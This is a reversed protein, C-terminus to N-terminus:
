MKWFEWWKKQKSSALQRQTELSEKLAVMLNQDREKLHNDMYEQQQKLLNLLEQNFNEQQEKFSQFEELLENYQRSYRKEDTARLAVDNGKKWVVVSRLAQELVMTDKYEMLKKFAILDDDFFGRHGHENKHFTYGAREFHSCSPSRRR